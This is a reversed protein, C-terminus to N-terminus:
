SRATSRLITLKLTIPIGDDDDDIDPCATIYVNINITDDCSGPGDYFAYIIRTFTIPNAPNFATAGSFPFGTFFKYGGYRAVPINVTLSPCTNTLITDGLPLCSGTIINSVPNPTNCGAIIVGSSDELSLLSLKGG